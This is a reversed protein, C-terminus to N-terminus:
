GGRDRGVEGDPKAPPPATNAGNEQLAKQLYYCAVNPKNLYHHICALNSYYMTPLHQGCARFTPLQLSAARNLVTVASRCRGGLYEAYSEIFARSLDQWLPRRGSVAATDSPEFYWPHNCPSFLTIRFLSVYFLVAIECWCHVGIM